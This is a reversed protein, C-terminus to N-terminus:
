IEIASMCLKVCRNGWDVKCLPYIIEHEIHQGYGKAILYEVADNVLYPLAQASTLNNYDGLEIRTNQFKVLLFTQELVTAGTFINM